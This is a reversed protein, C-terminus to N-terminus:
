FLKKVFEPATIDSFYESFPISELRELIEAQDHKSGELLKEVTVKDRKGAYDGSIIAKQIIGGSVSLRIHILERNIIFSKEFEYLPSYGFNWDWTLYKEDRLNNIKRIDETSLEYSSTGPFVNIIHEMIINRFQIVDMEQELYKKINTVRSRISQVAKSKYKEPNSKLANKLDDLLSSFLLTGHHLVRNRYVHEANGSIKRGNIVLNNKGEFCATIKLKELVEIIPATYKRFNVLHGKQGNMIFTFNLNGPDHFVTGGGSIRRIVPIRHRSVFDMNIEALANQHKGIIVSRSNRYLLFCNDTFNKLLYEESALNFYPDTDPHAICLM